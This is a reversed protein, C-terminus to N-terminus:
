HLPKYVDKVLPEHPCVGFFRHGKVSNCSYSIALFTVIGDGLGRCILCTLVPTASPCLWYLCCLPYSSLFKLEVTAIPTAEPQSTPVTTGKRPQRRFSIHGPM